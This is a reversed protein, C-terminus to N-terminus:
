LQRKKTQFDAKKNIKRLNKSIKRLKNGVGPISKGNKQYINQSLNQSCEPSHPIKQEFFDTPLFPNLIVCVDDFAAEVRAMAAKIPAVAAVEVKATVAGSRGM